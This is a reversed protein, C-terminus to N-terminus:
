RKQQEAWEQKMRKMEDNLALERRPTQREADHLWEGGIVHRFPLLPLDSRRM